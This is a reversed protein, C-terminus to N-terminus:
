LSGLPLGVARTYPTFLDDGPHHWRQAECVGADLIDHLVARLWADPVDQALQARVIAHDISPFYRAVDLHACWRWTRSWDRARRAAAHAGAGVRCAYSDRIMRREVLPAYVADLCQHVVRDGFPLVSITRPKPDFVQMLRPRSPTWTGARLADRLALLHDELTLRFRAVADRHRKGRMARGTAAWLAEFSFTQDRSIV